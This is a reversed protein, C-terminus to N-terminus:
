LLCRAGKEGNKCWWRLIQWINRVNKVSIAGSQVNMTYIVPKSEIELETM